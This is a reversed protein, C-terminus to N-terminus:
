HRVDNMRSPISPDPEPFQEGTLEMLSWRLLMSHRSAQFKMGSLKRLVEAQSIAKM